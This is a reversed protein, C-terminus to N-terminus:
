IRQSKPPSSGSCIWFEAERSHKGGGTPARVEEQEGTDGRTEGAAGAEGRKMVVRWFDPQPDSERLMDSQPMTHTGVGSVPVRLRFAADFLMVHVANTLTPSGFPVLLMGRIDHRIQSAQTEYAPLYQAFIARAMKCEHNQATAKTQARGHTSM